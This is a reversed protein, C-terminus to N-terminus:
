PTTNCFQIQRHIIWGGSGGGDVVGIDTVFVVVSDVVVVSGDEVM